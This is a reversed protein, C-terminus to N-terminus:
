EIELAKIEMEANWFDYNIEQIIWYIATDFDFRNVSHSFQFKDRCDLQWLPYTKFDLELRYYDFFASYVDAILKALQPYQIFRNSIKLIRRQWGFTGSRETGREGTFPNNWSVEVGDYVHQWTKIPAMSDMIYNSAEYITTTGKQSERGKLYFTREPGISHIMNLLQALNDICDRINDEGSDNLFMVPYVVEDYRFLYNYNPGTIGYPIGGAIALAKIDTENVVIDSEYTLTIETGDPAGGPVSYAANIIFANEIDNRIDVVVAYVKYDTSNYVLEKIQRYNNFTFGTGTQSTYLKDNTIDYVFYHYEMDAKNLLVGHISTENVNYVMDLIVCKPEDGASLSQNAEVSDSSFDFLTTDNNGDDDVRKLYFDSYDGPFTNGADDIIIMGYYIKSSYYFGCYIQKLYTGSGDSIDLVETVSGDSPDVSAIKWAAGTWEMFFWEDLNEDWVVFGKQGCSFCLGMLDGDNDGKFAYHGASRWVPLTNSSITSEATILTTNGFYVNAGVHLAWLYQNFPLCVNEGFDGAVGNIQGIYQDSGDDGGDRWCVESSCFISNGGSDIYSQETITALDTSRFVVAPTRRGIDIDGSYDEGALPQDAYDKWAVGQLYGAGDIVLRKIEVKFYTDDAARIYPDLKDLFTYGNELDFSWLEDEIGLFIKFGGWLLPYSSNVVLATPKKNYRMKPPRGYLSIVESAATIYMADLSQQATAFNTETMIDQLYQYVSQNEKWVCPTMVDSSNDRLIISDSVSKAPLHEFKVRMKLIAGDAGILQIHKIARRLNCTGSTYATCYIKIIYYNHFIDYEDIPIHDNPIDWTVAGSTSLDSTGDTVSLSAYTNYAKSYYWDITADLDSNLDFLIGTIPEYTLIYAIDDVGGILVKEDSDFVNAYNGIVDYSAGSDDYTLIEHIFPILAKKKGNAFQITFGGVKEANINTRNEMYFWSEHHKFTDYNAPMDINITHGKAATLTVGTAAEAPSAWAGFDYQWAVPPHYRIVHWGAPTDDSLSNIILDKIINESSFELNFENISEIIGATPEVVSILEIGPIYPLLGNEETIRFGPYRELEKLLGNCLFEVNQLNAIPQVSPLYVTGGFYLFETSDDTLKFIIQVWIIRGTNFLGSAADNDYFFEDANDVAIRVDDALSSNLTEGETAIRIPSFGNQLIYTSIDHKLAIHLGVIGTGFTSAGCTITTKGSGGDYTPSSTLTHYTDFDDLPIIFVDGDSLWSTADGSVKLQTGSVRDTIANDWQEFLYIKFDDHIVNYGQKTLFTANTTKLEIGM